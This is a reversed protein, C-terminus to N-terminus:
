AQLRDRLIDEVDEPQLSYPMQGWCEEVPQWFDHESWYELVQFMGNRVSLKLELKRAKKRLSSTSTTM